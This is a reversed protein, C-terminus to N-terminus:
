HSIICRIKCFWKFIVTVCETVNNLVGTVTEPLVNTKFVHIPCSYGQFLLATIEEKYYM